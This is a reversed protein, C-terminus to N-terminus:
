RCGSPRVDSGSSTMTLMQYHGVSTGLPTRQFWLHGGDPTFIPNSDYDPGFTLQRAGTGDSSMIWIHGCKDTERSFVIQRGDSSYSPGSEYEPDSTLPKSDRGAVDMTWLDGHGIALTTYLITRGNPSIAFPRDALQVNKEDHGEVRLPVDYIPSFFYRLALGAVATLCILCVFCALLSRRNSRTTKTATSMDIEWSLWQVMVQAPYFVGIRANFQKKNYGDGEV